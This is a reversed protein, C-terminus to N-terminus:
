KNIRVNFGCLLSTYILCSVKMQQKWVLKSDRGSEYGIPVPTVKARLLAVTVHFQDKVEM